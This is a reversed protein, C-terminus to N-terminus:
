FEMEAESVTIIFNIIQDLVRQRDMLGKEELDLLIDILVKPKTSDYGSPMENSSETKREELAHSLVKKAITELYKGAKSEESYLSTCRYIFEPQLTPIAGRLAAIKWISCIYNM